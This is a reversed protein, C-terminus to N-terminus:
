LAYLAALRWRGHPMQDEAKPMGCMGHDQPQHRHAQPRRVVRPSGTRSVLRYRDSQSGHVHKGPTSERPKACLPSSLARGLRRSTSTATRGILRRESGSVHQFRARLAACSQELRLGEVHRRRNAPQSCSQKRQYRGHQSFCRRGRRTRALAHASPAGARSGSEIQFQPSREEHRCSSLTQKWDTMSTTLIKSELAAKCTPLGRKRSENHRDLRDVFV